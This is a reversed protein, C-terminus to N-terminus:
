ANLSDSSSKKQRKREEAISLFQRVVVGRFDNFTVIEEGKREEGDEM